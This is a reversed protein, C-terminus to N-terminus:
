TEQQAVRLKHEASDRHWQRRVSHQRAADFLLRIHNSLSQAACAFTLAHISSETRQAAAPSLAHVLLVDVLAAAPRASCGECDLDAAIAADIM